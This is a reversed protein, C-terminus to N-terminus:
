GFRGDELTGWGTDTDNRPFAIWTDQSTRITAVQSKGNKTIKRISSKGVRAIREVTYGQDKLADVAIEFLETKRSLKEPEKFVDTM